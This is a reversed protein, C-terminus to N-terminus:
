SRERWYRAAEEMGEEWTRRPAYGLDARVRAADVRATRYSGPPVEEKPIVELPATKFWARVADTYVRWSRHEDALNYVRGEARDAGLALLVADVLDEVHLFPILDGGDIRLKVKRDRVMEPVRVAWTSTPHAGLIAGPRVITVPLGQAAAALVLRDAEAKTVGYPDGAVRLAAGDGETKLPSDEHFREPEDPRYVSITSIQIYRRVGAARAADLMSRTGDVNVRRVPEWDPGGAAACHVVVECGEAARRSVSPDAFDGAVEEVGPARLHPSQGPRRVIARLPVGLGTLRLAVRTGVFGNGGTLLVRGGPDTM